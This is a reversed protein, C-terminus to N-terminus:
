ASVQCFRVFPGEGKTSGTYGTNQLRFNLPLSEFSFNRIEKNIEFGVIKFM